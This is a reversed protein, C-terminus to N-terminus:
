MSRSRSRSAMSTTARCSKTAIDKLLRNANGMAIGIGVAQLMEIDNEGDGIAMAHGKAVDLENMLIRLSHGKSTNVPLIEMMGEINVRTLHVDRGHKRNIEARLDNVYHEEGYLVIKYIEANDSVWQWSPVKESIPNGFESLRATM